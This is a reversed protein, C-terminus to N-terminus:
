ASGEARRVRFADRPFHVQVEGAREDRRRLVLEDPALAVLEGRTAASGYDDPAVEVEDGIAIGELPVGAEAPLPQAKSNRAIELAEDAGLPTPRGIGFDGMRGRWAAVAPYGEVHHSLLEDRGLAWLPAYACFDAWGVADGFLFPGGAGLQTELRRLTDGLVRRGEALSPPRVRAGKMMEGRDKAFAAIGEPGGLARLVAPLAAPDTLQVVCAFFLKEDFWRGAAVALGAQEPRLVPREPHLEDLRRTILSTDCYVDCGIQVVPTKRYGGTLAILDPKPMAIPIEVSRWDLDKFGLISRLKQAFPSGDYHHLLIESM